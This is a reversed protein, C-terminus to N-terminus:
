LDVLDKSRTNAFVTTGEATRSGAGFSADPTLSAGTEMQCLSLQRSWSQSIIHLLSASSGPAFLKTDVVGSVGQTCDQQLM